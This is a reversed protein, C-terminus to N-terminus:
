KIPVTSNTCLKMIFVDIPLTFYTKKFPFRFTPFSNSMRASSGTPSWRPSPCRWSSWWSPLYGVTWIRLSRCVLGTREYRIVNHSHLHSKSLFFYSVQWTTDFQKLVGIEFNWKKLKKWVQPLALSFTSQKGLFLLCMEKLFFTLCTVPPM